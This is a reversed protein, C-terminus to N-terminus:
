VIYITAAYLIPAPHPPIQRTNATALSTHADLLLTIAISERAEKRRAAKILKGGQGQTQTYHKAQRQRSIWPHLGGVGVLPRRVVRIPLKQTGGERRGKGEENRVYTPQNVYCRAQKM